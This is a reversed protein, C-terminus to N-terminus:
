MQDGKISNCLRHAVRVNGWSHTGCKALPVVHDITPYRNGAVFYHDGIMRYDNLDCPKGCLYCRLGDREILKRLSIDSDIVIGGRKRADRRSRHKRDKARDRCRDSCFVKVKHESRFREGCEPCVRDIALADARDRERKAEHEMRRLNQEAERMERQCDPCMCPGGHSIFGPTREFECSCARCRLRISERSNTYGGLYDLRDSYGLDHFKRLFAAEATDRHRSRDNYGLRIGRSSLRKSLANRSIGLADAAEQQTMGSELLALADSIDKKRRGM